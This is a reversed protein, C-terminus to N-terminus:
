LSAPVRPKFRQFRSPKEPTKPQQELIQQLIIVISVFHWPLDFYSLSLFAGGSFYALFGVQLMKALAHFQKLADNKATQKIM